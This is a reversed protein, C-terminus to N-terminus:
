EDKEDGLWTFITRDTVDLPPLGKKSLAQNIAIHTKERSPLKGELTPVLRMLARMFKRQKPNLGRENEPSGSELQLTSLDSLKHLPTGSEISKILRELDRRLIVVQDTSLYQQESTEMSWLEISAYEGERKHGAPVLEGDLKLEQKSRALDTFFRPEFTWLGSALVTKSDAISTPELDEALEAHHGLIAIRRIEDEQNNSGLLGMLEERIANDHYDGRFVSTSM